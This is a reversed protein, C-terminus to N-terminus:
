RVYHEHEPIMVERVWDKLTSFMRHQPWPTREASRSWTLHVECVRGDDLQVLVDDAQVSRAIARLNAGHLPHGPSVETRLERVLAEASDAIVERWPELYSFPAIGMTEIRSISLKPKLDRNVRFGDLHTSAGTSTDPVCDKRHM